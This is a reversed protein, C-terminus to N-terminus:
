DHTTLQGRRHITYVRRPRELLRGMRTELPRISAYNGARAKHRATSETRDPMWLSEDCVM